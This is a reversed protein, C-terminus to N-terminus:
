AKIEVKGETTNENIITEGSRSWSLSWDEGDEGLEPLGEGYNRAYAELEEIQETGENFHTPQNESTTEGNTTYNQVFKETMANVPTIPSIIGDNGGTAEPEYAAGETANGVGVFIALEAGPCEFEAFSGAWPPVAAAPELLVGVEKAAKNTYGLRGKLTNTLIEGAAAGKSNCPITRYLDCETFVVSINAVQDTGVAEGKAQEGKCEVVENASGTGLDRSSNEPKCDKNPIRWGGHHNENEAQTEGIKGGSYCVNFSGQLIGPTTGKGTFKPGGTVKEYHGKEKPVFVGKKTKGELETCGANKYKGKKAPEPYCTTDAGGVWEYFGKAKAKFVGKGNTKGELETCNADKYKGKNKALKVCHGWEPAEAASASGAAIAVLAFVAVLCAGILKIHKM